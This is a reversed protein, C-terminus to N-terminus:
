LSRLRPVLILVIRGPSPDRIEEAGNGLGRIGFHGDNQFDIERIASWCFAGEHTGFEHVVIGVRANHRLHVHCLVFLHGNIEAGEKRRYATQALKTTRM